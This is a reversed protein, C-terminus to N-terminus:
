DTIHNHDHMKKRWPVPKKSNVTHPSTIIYVIIDPMGKNNHNAINRTEM